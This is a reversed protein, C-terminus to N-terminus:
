APGEGRAVPHPCSAGPPRSGGSAADLHSVGRGEPTAKFMTLGDCEYVLKEEPKTLVNATGVLRQLAAITDSKLMTEGSLSQLRNRVIAHNDYADAPFTDIAQEVPM